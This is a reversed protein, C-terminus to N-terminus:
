GIEAQLQKKQDIRRQLSENDLKYMLTFGM